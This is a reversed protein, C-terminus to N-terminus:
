FIFRNSPVNFGGTGSGGCSGPPGHDDDDGDFRRQRYSAGAAVRSTQLHLTRAELEQEQLYLQNDKAVTDMLQRSLPPDNLVAQSKEDSTPIKKYFIVYATDKSFHKTVNSFSNYTSYSVRSDNFLYWHDPLDDMDDAKSETDKTQTASPSPPPTTHRAYCYYHGSESSVGSHVIVSSLAYNRLESKDNVLLDDGSECSPCRRKLSPSESDTNSEHMTLKDLMSDKKRHMGRMPLDLIKPYKVDTLLKSRTHLKVDYSFRLLTLILFRPISRIELFREADQLSKCKECFYQNEGELLEPALFHGILDELAVTNRQSDSVDDKKDEVDKKETFTCNNEDGDKKEIEGQGGKMCSNDHNSGANPKSKEPFALPLDIFSEERTSVHNCTLCRTITASKGGFYKEVISSSTDQSAEESTCDHQSKPLIGDVSMSTSPEVCVNVESNEQATYSPVVQDDGGEESNGAVNQTQKVRQIKEKARRLSMEYKRNEKDEEDLRDLLYKLFESCDQQAGMEFWPPRSVKLFDSPSYASRQTNSLFAFVNQINPMVRQQVLPSYSLVERRFGDGMYLAQIVSNMYCTNGLNVLGTKGTESKPGFKSYDSFIMRGQSTWANSKLKRKIVENDPKPYDKFAELVPEYLDPYGAHQYIMCHFLESLRSLCDRSSTSDEKKLFGVLDSLHGVVKHFAEPSHQFSLLMHTLVALASSRVIPYYLRSFVKEVTAVTVNILITFKQVSALSRLFAVIWKDIIKVAPWSLWDIMRSLAVTMNADLVSPDSAANKTVLSIMEVPVYQALCGLAVSPERPLDDGDRKIRTLITFIERLSPMINSFDSHWIKFLLTGIANVDKFRTKLALESNPFEVRSVAQILTVCYAAGFDGLPICEPFEIMLKCLAACVDLQACDRALSIARTQIVKCVPTKDRLLRISDHIFEITPKPNLVACSMVNVLYSYHFFEEFIKLNQKAWAQFVVRGMEQLVATEDQLIWNASITLISKCVEPNVPKNASTAFKQILFKKVNDPHNSAAIGQLIKDM